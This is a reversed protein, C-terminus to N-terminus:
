GAGHKQGQSLFEHFFIDNVLFQVNLFTSGEREGREGREREGGGERERRERGGRKRSHQSPKVTQIVHAVCENARSKFSRRFMRMTSM